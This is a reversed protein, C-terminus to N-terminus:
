DPSIGYALALRRKAEAITIGKSELAGHKKAPVRASPLAGRKPPQEWKLTAPDIGLEDLNGYRVPNRYGKPWADPVNIHAFESFAIRYRNAPAEDNEPTPDCPVVDK